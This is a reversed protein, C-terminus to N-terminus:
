KNFMPVAFICVMIMIIIIMIMITLLITAGIGAGDEVCRGFYHLTLYCETSERYLRLWM